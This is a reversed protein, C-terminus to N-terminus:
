ALQLVVFVTLAPTLIWIAAAAYKQKWMARLVSYPQFQPNLATAPPKRAAAASGNSNGPGQGPLLKSM